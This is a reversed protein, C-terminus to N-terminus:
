GDKGAEAVLRLLPAHQFDATSIIIADVDKLELLDEIYQFSRPSRGYAASATNAARERNVKWLDCVATMEVNHRDKLDAVVSALERGRRGIGVQGLSIRDNAGVVRSYSVATAGLTSGGILLTRRSISGTTPRPRTAEDHVEPTKQTGMDLSAQM